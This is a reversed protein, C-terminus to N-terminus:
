AGMWKITMNGNNRAIWAFDGFRLMDTIHATAIFLAWVQDPSLGFYAIDGANNRFSNRANTLVQRVVSDTAGLTLEGNEYTLYDTAFRRADEIAMSLQNTTVTFGAQIGDLQDTLASTDAERQAIEDALDSTLAGVDVGMSDIDSTNAAISDLADQITGGNGFQATPGLRVVGNDLDIYVNGNANGIYGSIMHAATVLDANVHGAVMLTSWNWDEIGTFSSQKSNAIRIAGGKIQVVQSAETAVLPNAVATDYTLTGQGPVQYTYGGLANIEANLKDVLHELYVITGGSVIQNVRTTVNQVTAEALTRIEDALSSGLQGMTLTVDEDNLENVEMAMVRGEIRLPADGFGRDVCQTTDGLEVGQVDMGARALQVVNAEYTVGPHTHNPLDALAKLYLEEADGETELAYNVTKTPYIWGGAGDSLRFDLVADSDEIYDVGGQTEEEIGVRNSYSVGDADTGESGGRPVIRCYYPGPDPTRRIGTVDYGWDFRRTVSTSGLRARWDVYRSVVGTSDVVIRADMEGGWVEVLKALYDWVQGDYLSAGGTTGVDCNGAQWLPSNTLAIALAASATIPDHTGEEASLWLVGGPCAELDYQMSWCAKYTGIACRGSEHAEDPEDVVWERWKGTGDVTLLRYGVLLRRTTVITLTHEGNIEEYRVRGLVDAPALDGLPSGHRDYLLIRDSPYSM